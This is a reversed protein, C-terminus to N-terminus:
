ARSNLVRLLDRVRRAIEADADTAIDREREAAALMSLLARYADGRESREALLAPANGVRADIRERMESPTLATLEALERRLRLERKLRPAAVGAFLAILIAGTIWPLARRKVAERQVANPVDRPAEADAALTAEIPPLTCGVERRQGTAPDFVRLTLPPLALTGARAPFILYRWKRSMTIGGEDRTVTVPESEVQVSGAINDLRPAAAARVNGHGALTAEIVVPGGRAQTSGSCELTLNGVADVPPGPPLPKVDIDVPASSYSVEFLNGEFMSFPGTRIRRMVSADLTIGDIRFRGSRLPFLAVRRLPTTQMLAGGVFEQQPAARRVDIEETWFDKLKPVSTVQVQQLNAANYLTWTVVIQEGVYASTKDVTAIVFFPDRRTEILERLVAEPENTTATRDQVVDIAIQALTQRRGNDDVLVVPGVAAQGAAIPRVRYRFVKRRIVDGNVWSFESSVWPEGVFALNQLPIKVADASAADGELSVTITVVDNTSVSRRDVTLDSAFSHLTCLASLLTALLILRWLRPREGRGEASQGRCENTRVV